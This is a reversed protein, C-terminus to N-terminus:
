DREGEKTMSKDNYKIKNINERYKMITRYQLM